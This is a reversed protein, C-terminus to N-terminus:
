VYPTIIFLPDRQPHATDVRNPCEELSGSLEQCKEEHMISGMAFSICSCNQLRPRLLKLPESNLMELM